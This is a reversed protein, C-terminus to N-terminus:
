RPRLRGHKGNKGVRGGHNMQGFSPFRQKVFSVAQQFLKELLFGDIRRGVFQSDALWKGIFRMREWLDCRVQDAPEILFSVAFVGTRGDVLANLGLYFIQRFSPAVLESSAIDAIQSNQHNVNRAILHHCVAAVDM